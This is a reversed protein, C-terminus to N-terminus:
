GSAAAKIWRDYRTFVKRDLPELFAALRDAESELDRLPARPIPKFPLLEIRLPSAPADVRWLGAVRGDILFTPFYDGRKNVIRGRYEAPVIREKDAYGIVASDWMSLLRPPAPTGAPPLPAGTLDVLPKGSESRYHVLRPELREIAGRLGAASRGSWRMLDATSAPGFATIYREVLYDTANELTAFTGELWAAPAVFRPRPGFGWVSRGPAHIFPVHRRIRWLLIEPDEDPAHAAVHDRLEAGLRPEAAFAAAVEALRPLDVPTVANGRRTLSIAQLLPFVAPHLRLYDGATVLHLTVRMLTAKVVERRELAEILTEPRFNEVRTWLAVFPAAPEQAQIAVLREIASVVDLPERRLLMQRELTARNLETTTLVRESV